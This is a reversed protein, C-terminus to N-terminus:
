DVADFSHSSSYLPLFLTYVSCLYPTGQVRYGQPLLSVNRVLLFPTPAFRVLSKQNRGLNKRENVFSKSALDSWRQSATVVRLRSLVEGRV